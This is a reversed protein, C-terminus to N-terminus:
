DELVISNDVNARIQSLSWEKVLKGDEFVTQLCSKDEQEKTVQDEAIYKNGNSQVCILGKLSKKTGDDTKPDKFIERGEGNVQCWTAFETAPITAAILEEGANANYYGELGAIAPITESGCFSTM